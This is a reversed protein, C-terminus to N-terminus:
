KEKLLARVLAESETKANLTRLNGKRDFVWLTPLANIALSRVLPSKWGQGDFLVPWSIGRAKLTAELIERSPDLSVGIVELPERAFTKRLYEVEELGLLSPASWSAFFYVLAVKGRAASLDVQTGSATVGRIDVPRGLFTLRRMDDEIRARLQPTRAVMLAQKLLEEKRRPEEDFLTAVETMLAAVRRDEPYLKQFGSMQSLLATRDAETPVTIRRMSLAIRAFELDARRDAPASQLADTLLRLAAQFYAPNGELDSRTTLLAALRLQADVAHPTEPYKRLFDRLGAEQKALHELSVKRAQDRTRIETQPGAELALVANWEAEAREATGSGSQALAMWPFLLLAPFLRLNM